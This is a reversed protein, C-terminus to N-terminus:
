ILSPNPDIGQYTAIFPGLFEFTATKVWKSQDMSFKKFIEILPGNKIEIPSIKSIQPLMEVAARRVGWVSDNSLKKFVPFLIRLFIEKGLVVSINIMRTVTEKRVRYVSDDQLSVIEYM